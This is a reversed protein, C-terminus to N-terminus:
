VLPYDKAFPDNTTTFSGTLTTPGNLDGTVVQITGIEVPPLLNTSERQLAALNSSSDYIGPNIIIGSADDDVVTGTDTPISIEIPQLTIDVPPITLPTDLTSLVSPAVSAPKPDAKLGSDAITANSASPSQGTAITGGAPPSTGAPQTTQNAAPERGAGDAPQDSQSFDNIICELKQKFTGNSFTSDVSTVQYSIGKILKAVNPPYKWFLISENISLTGPEGTVGTQSDVKTSSYDVAEKFDIEIFVQGGNPNISFGDDGYFKQYLSEESYSSDVMIFDPDGLITITAMAQSVPDNLSTLASDQAASGQGTKNPTDQPQAKGTVVPTKPNPASETNGTNNTATGDTTPNDTGGEKNPPVVAVVFYTNNLEQSYSIIESNKGTYWYDYRKHPGYYSTSPNAYVSDLVPVDYIQILYKIDYVWIGLQENWRANKLEASCNYWKFMKKSTSDVQNPTSKNKPPELATTYVTQLGQELFQSNMIIEKIADPIPAGASFTFNRKTNNPTGNKTATQDNTQATTKAGSGPWKLKNLDAESVMKSKGILTKAENLLIIEYTSHLSPDNNKKTLEEQIKNLKTTLETFAEEVTGATIQINQDIQGKALSFAEKPALSVGQINYVVTRGDIRFKMETIVIDFYREFVAGNGSANPDLINGDFVEKGTMLNGREDYGFFRVGLIFFQKTADTPLTSDKAATLELKKSKGYKILGDRANKLNSIFSFGYPETITFKVETVNSSGEGAKASTVTTFGLNDIAYDFAFGAARTESKNNIGGSQAVLFAGAGGETKGAAAQQLASINKRGSQIFADYADPTIMYLSIQYTYSSFYGLPNKLRKGPPQTKSAETRLTPGATTSGAVPLTGNSGGSPNTPAATSTNGTGAATAGTADPSTSTPSGTSGAPNPQVAGSDDNAVTNTITESTTTTTTVGNVTTTTETTNTVTTTAANAPAPPPPDPPPPPPPPSAENGLKTLTSTAASNLYSIAQNKAAQQDPSTNFRNLNDLVSGAAEAPTYGAGSSLFQGGSYIEVNYLGMGGSIDATFTIRLDGVNVTETAVSM